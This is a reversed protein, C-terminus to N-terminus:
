VYIYKGRKTDCINNGNVVRCIDKLKYTNNDFEIDDCDEVMDKEIMRM